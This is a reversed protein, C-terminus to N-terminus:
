EVQNRNEFVDSVSFIALELDNPTRDLREEIARLEDDTLGLARHLPPAATTM